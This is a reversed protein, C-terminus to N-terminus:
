EFIKQYKESFYRTIEDMQKDISGQISGNKGGCRASFLDRFDSALNNLDEEGSEVIFRYGNEDNGAFVACIGQRRSKLENVAFKLLDTEDASLVFLGNISAEIRNLVIKRKLEVNAYQSDALAKKNKIADDCLNTLSSNMIRGLESVTDIMESFCELARKGCLYNLRTGGKYNEFSIIKFVGIEGTLSVHPACCACLDIEDIEVLRLDGVIGKPKSRFELSKIEEESPFFITVRRNEWIASNTLIELKKVDDSSLKGDYDMTATSESLHFGVNNYGYLRKVFGSFIHEGSHMQMNSYRHEWDIKGCVTCGVEIFSSVTHYIVSDKLKVDLVEIDNITGKDCSQGGEEPFFGTKDLVVIYTGNDQKECNEVKAEFEKIYSNTNYLKETM